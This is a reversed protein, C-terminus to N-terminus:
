NFLYMEVYEKINYDCSNLLLIFYEDALSVISILDGKLIIISNEDYNYNSDFPSMYLIDTETSFVINQKNDLCLKILSILYSIAEIWLNLNGVLLEISRENRGRSKMEFNQLSDEIILNQQNINTSLNQFISTVIELTLGCLIHLGFQRNKALNLM